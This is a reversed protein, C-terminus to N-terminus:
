SMELVEQSITIDFKDKVIQIIEDRAEALSEYSTACDNILV